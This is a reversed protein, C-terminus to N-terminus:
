KRRTWINYGGSPFGGKAQPTVRLLLGDRKAKDKFWKVSSKHLVWTLYRYKKGNFARMSDTNAM